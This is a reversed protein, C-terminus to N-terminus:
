RSAAVHCGPEQAASRFRYAAELLESAHDIPDTTTMRRDDDRAGCVSM